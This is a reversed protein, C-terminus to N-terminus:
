KRVGLFQSGSYICTHRYLNYCEVNEPELRGVKLTAETAVVTKNKDEETCRNLPSGPLQGFLTLDYCLQILALLYCKAQTLWFTGQSTGCIVGAHEGLQCNHDGLAGIQCGQLSNEDGDCEVKDLLYNTSNPGLTGM